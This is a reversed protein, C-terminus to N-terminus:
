YNRCLAVRLIVSDFVQGKRMYAIRDGLPKDISFLITRTDRKLVAISLKHRSGDGQTLIAGPKGVMTKHM